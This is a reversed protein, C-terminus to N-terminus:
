LFNQSYSPRQLQTQFNEFKELGKNFFSKKRSKEPTKQRFSFQEFRKQSYIILSFDTAELRLNCFSDFNKWTQPFIKYEFVPHHQYKRM